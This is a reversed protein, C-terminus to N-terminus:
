YPAPECRQYEPRLPDPKCRMRQSAPAPPPAAVKVAEQITRMSEAAARRREREGQARELEAAHHRDAEAQAAHHAIQQQNARSTFLAACSARLAADAGPSLEVRECQGVLARDREAAYVAPPLVASAHHAGEEGSLAVRSALVYARGRVGEEDVFFRGDGWAVARRAAADWAAARAAVPTAATCTIWAGAVSDAARAVQCAPPAAPPPAAAHHVAGGSACGALVLVLAAQRM